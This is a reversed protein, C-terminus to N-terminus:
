AVPDPANGPPDAFTLARKLAATFIVVTLWILLGGVILHGAVPNDGSHPSLLLARAWVGAFLLTAAGAIRTFPGTAKKRTRAPGPPQAVTLGAPLDATLAALETRTQPVLARGVRLDFEDKGMLGQVFAAQLMSIVQERDARSARLHGCDGPAPAIEDGPGAM